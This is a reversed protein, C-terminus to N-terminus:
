ITMGFPIPLVRDPFEVVVLRAIRQSALMCVHFTCVTVGILPVLVRGHVTVGTVLFVVLVFPLLPCFAFLTVVGAGPLFRREVMILGTERQHPRMGLRFAHLAMESRGEFVRRRITVGAVLLVVFMFPSERLLALGAMPCAIPLRDGEIM